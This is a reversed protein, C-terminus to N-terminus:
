RQKHSLSSYAANKRVANRKKNKFLGKRGGGQYMDEVCQLLMSFCRTDREGGVWRMISDYCSM